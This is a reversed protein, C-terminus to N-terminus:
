VFFCMMHMSWVLLITAHHRVDIKTSDLEFTTSRAQIWLEIPRSPENQNTQNLKVKENFKRAIHIYIGKWQISNGKKNHKLRFNLLIKWFYQGNLRFMWSRCWPHLSKSKSHCKKFIRWEFRGIMKLCTKTKFILFVTKCKSKKPLFLLTM